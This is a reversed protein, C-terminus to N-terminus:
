CSLRSFAGFRSSVGKRKAPSKMVKTNSLLLSVISFVTFLALRFADFREARAVL